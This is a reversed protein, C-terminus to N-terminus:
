VNSKEGYLVTELGGRPLVGRITASVETAVEILEGRDIVLLLKCCGLTSLRHAIVFTTRNKMLREIADVIGVETKMDVSSTPEDLILIPANRLFVRALALRQYEGFRAM